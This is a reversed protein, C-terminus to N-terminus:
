KKIGASWLAKMESAFLFQEEDYFFYFPKEGFRDRAAFLTQEKKDWIAFSFMGDFHATCDKKYYAYAAAVVETDSQTKFICGKEQLSKKLELYNYLEGNYVLIYREDYFFPQAAEPLLDIIALRRHGLAVTGERNIWHGDGEPGRHAIATTANKIREMTVLATNNSLIGAIGCM